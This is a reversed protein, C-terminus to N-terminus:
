QQPSQLRISAAGWADNVLELDAMGPNSCENVMWETVITVKNGPNFMTPRGKITFYLPPNAHAGSSIIVTIVM